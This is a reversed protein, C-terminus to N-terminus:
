EELTFIIGDAGLNLIVGETKADVKISVGKDNEIWLTGGTKVDTVTLGARLQVYTGEFDDITKMGYVTGVADISEVGVGGIGLGGVSFGRVAGKYEITGKGTLGSALYSARYADVKITASPQKEEEASAASGLTLALLVALVLSAHRLLVRM